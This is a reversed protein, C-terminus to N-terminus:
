AEPDGTMASKNIEAQTAQLTSTDATGTMIGNQAAAHQVVAVPDNEQYALDNWFRISEYGKPREPLGAFPDTNLFGSCSAFESRKRDILWQPPDRYSELESEFAARPDPKNGFQVKIPLCRVLGDVVLLAARGDGALARKAAEAVVESYNPLVNPKRNSIPVMASAQHAPEDAKPEPPPSAKALLSTPATEVNAPTRLWSIAAGVGLFAILFFVRFATNRM